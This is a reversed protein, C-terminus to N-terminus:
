MGDLAAAAPVVLGFVNGFPNGRLQAHLDVAAAHAPLAIRLALGELRASVPGAIDLIREGDDTGPPKRPPVDQQHVVHEGRAARHKRAGPLNQARRGTAADADGREGDRPM